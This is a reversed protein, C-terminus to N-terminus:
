GTSNPKRLYVMVSNFVPGGGIKQTTTPVLINQPRGNLDVLQRPSWLVGRPVKDVVQAKVSVEGNENYLVVEEGDRIGLEKADEPNIQVIAPIPGYVDRFQTHTYKPTASNLLVFGKGTMYEMEPLPSHGLKIATTSYLEIKGSPTQYADLPRTKLRLVKGSLLDEFTGEIAGELAERLVQIPDRCVWEPAGLRKALECTLWTEDRSEGQPEIARQSFAVYNHGYPLVVDSKELYTTAPLVIDAYMSTENWHTDFQVVFVDGRALGRRLKEQGPLTLAPNMNYVFIFKFEGREIHEALAVQSVIRKPKSIEEGTVKAINALWRRSNSYYFGRHIGLLAPILSIARVAQAGNLSKQIGLGIFTVSPKKESYLEALRRISSVDVGTVESVRSPPWKSAENKLEEFGFTYKEVFDRDYLEESILINMVGYALAVDTGPRPNISFDSREVTESKRPDIAIILAGKNRERLALAWFHPSSVAANFGWFVFLKSGKMEEPLRGYSLGYHLSLAAHGSKSCISYDTMTAQLWNWLRQPYYWALLGMNGAYEVHLLAEPGYDRITETIKEAVVDLAESWGIRKFGLSPKGKNRSHPYLIREKSFARKLDAVGRACLFGSTFENSPDPLVQTLGAKEVVQLHCTDYCDRPCVTRVLPV